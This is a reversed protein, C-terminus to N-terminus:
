QFGMPNKIQWRWADECMDKLTKKAMWGLKNRAETPDAYVMAIDGERRPGVQYPIIKGSAQELAQILELVSYGKGTGLNFTGSQGQQIYTLACVHGEALDVVHLYDRVGTGDSTPYDNGFITAFPRRGVAVQQLYPMINNPIGRPDEGILGSPHAGIPNFYRLICINWSPDSFQLDLLMEEIMHKTRGYPNTVHIACSEHVPICEPEGYVTASSSFVLHKCDHEAMVELLVLTGILNTKYYLLPNRVSEGVAKLGAFHIVAHITFSDFITAVAKKDLIDCQHFVIRTFLEDGVIVKIRDLVIPSSNSFNDAIHITYGEQVLAIVTHSGIYGCGGTILISRHKLAPPM